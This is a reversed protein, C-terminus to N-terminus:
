LIPVINIAGIIHLAVTAAVVIVVTSAATAAVIVTVGVFSILPSLALRSSSPVCTLVFLTSCGFLTSYLLPNIRLIRLYFGVRGHGCRIPGVGCRRLVSM